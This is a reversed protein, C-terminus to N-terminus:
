HDLVALVKGGDKKPQHTYQTTKDIKSCDLKTEQMTWHSGGGGWEQYRGPHQECWNLEGSQKSCQHCDSIHYLKKRLKLRTLPGNLCCKFERSGALTHESYYIKPEPLCSTNSQAAKVKHWKKGYEAICNAEAIERWLGAKMDKLETDVVTAPADYRKFYTLDRIKDFVATNASGRTMKVAKFWDLSQIAYHNMHLHYESYDRAEGRGELPEDCKRGVSASNICTGYKKNVKNLGHVHINYDGGAGARIISKCHTSGKHRTIFTDVASKPIKIQGSSGYVKWPVCVQVVAPSLSMLYDGILKYGRRAYVFEDTDVVIIWEALDRFPKSYKTYHEMQAHKVLDRHLTVQGKEIYDALIDRSENELCVDCNDILIFHDVGQWLYHEIWERIIHTENFMQSMVVVPYKRPAVVGSQRLSRGLMIINWEVNAAFDPSGVASKVINYRMWMETARLPSPAAECICIAPGKGTTTCSEKGGTQLEMGLCASGPPILSNSFTRQECLENCNKLGDSELRETGPRLNSIPDEGFDEIAQLNGEQQGFTSM